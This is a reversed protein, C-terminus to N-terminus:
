IGRHIDRIGRADLRGRRRDFRDDERDRDRDWDGCRDRDRDRGRVGCSGDWDAQSRDDYYCGDEDDGAFDNRFGPHPPFPPQQPGAWPSMPHHGPHGPHFHGPHPGRFRPPGFPPLPGQHHPTHRYPGDFGPGGGGSGPHEGRQDHISHRPLPGMDFPPPGGHPPPYPGMHHPPPGQQHPPGQFPGHMWMNYPPQHQQGEYLNGGPMPPPQQQQQEDLVRRVHAAFENHQQELNAYEAQYRERIETERTECMKRQSELWKSLFEESKPIRMLDLLESELYENKVWLDLVRVLKIKRDADALDMALCFCPLVLDRFASKLHPPAGRRKCHHLLDNLLYVIHLRLDFSVHRAAVRAILYDTMLKTLEPTKAMRDIVWTKGRAINEKTCSEILPQIIKDMEAWPMDMEDGRIKVMEERYSDLCDAIESNQKTMISEYQAKLNAESQEVDKMSLNPPIVAHAPDVPQNTPPYFPAQTGQAVFAAPGSFVPPRSSGDLFGPSWGPPGNQNWMQGSQGWNGPPPVDFTSDGPWHAQNGSWPYPGNSHPNFG